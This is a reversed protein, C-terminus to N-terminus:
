PAAASAAAGATSWRSGSARGTSSAREIHEAIHRAVLAAGLKKAAFPSEQKYLTGVRAREEDSLVPCNVAGPIHDEAFEAPSRVDIIEDFEGAQTVNAVGTSKM